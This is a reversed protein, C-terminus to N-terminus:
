KNFCQLCFFLVAFAARWHKLAHFNQEWLIRRDLQVRKICMMPESNRKYSKIARDM